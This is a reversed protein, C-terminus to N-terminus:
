FEKIDLFPLGSIYQNPDVPEVPPVYEGMIDVVEWPMVIRSDAISSGYLADELAALRLKDSKTSDIIIHSTRQETNILQPVSTINWCFNVPEPKKEKVKFERKDFSASANYVIHIKYGYDIGQTDNGILTVYSFGFPKKNQQAAKSGKGIYAIGACADFEDPYTYAEIKAEYEELSFMVIFKENDAYVPKETGGKSTETVSILGNWPVGHHYGNSDKIFLVGKQVGAEYIRQTVKDWVLRM